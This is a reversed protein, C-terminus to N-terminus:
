GELLDRLRCLLDQSDHQISPIHRHCRHHHRKSYCLTDEPEAEGSSVVKMFIIRHFDINAIVLIPRGRLVTSRFVVKLVQHGEHIGPGLTTVDFRTDAQEMSTESSM